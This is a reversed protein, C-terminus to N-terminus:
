GGHEVHPLVTVADQDIRVEWDRRCRPCRFWARRKSTVEADAGGQLLSPVLNGTWGCEGHPCNVPYSTLM